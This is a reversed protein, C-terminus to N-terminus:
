AAHGLAQAKVRQATRVSVSHGRDRLHDALEAATMAPWGNLAARALRVRDPLDEERTAESGSDSKPTRPARTTPPAAPLVHSAGAPLGVDALVSTRWARYTARPALCWVALGRGAARRGSLARRRATAVVSEFCIVFMAPPIAHLLRGALGPSATGNVAVSAASLTVVLTRLLIAAQGDRAAAVVKLSLVVIGLDFSLPIAPALWLPFGGDSEALLRLTDYSTVFGITVLMAVGGAVVRELAQDLPPQGATDDTATM